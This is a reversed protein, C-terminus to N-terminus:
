KALLFTQRMLAITKGTTIYPHSLKVIFFASCWLISAKSSHHQLLSKLTGQVALLDLWDIGFSIQGPHESPPSISFTFSWYKPWKICLVSENSFVRISPFVSPLLLLPCYFILHNSPMVWHVHTQTSEPLQHYEPLGPMSCNMPDCLTLCLQAVSSFQVQSLKRLAWFKFQSRTDTESVWVCDAIVDGEIAISMVIDTFPLPNLPLYQPSFMAPLIDFSEEVSAVHPFLSDQHYRVGPGLSQTGAHTGARM